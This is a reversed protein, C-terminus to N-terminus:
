QKTSVKVKPFLLNCEIPHKPNFFLYVFFSFNKNSLFADSNQFEIKIFTKIDVIKCLSFFIPIESQFFFIQKKLLTRSNKKKSQDLSISCNKSVSNFNQSKEFYIEISIKNWIRHFLKEILFKLKPKKWFLNWNFNQELFKYFLKEVRFKLKTKKTLNILSCYKQFKQKM